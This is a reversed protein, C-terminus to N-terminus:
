TILWAGAVLCAIAAAKRWVLGGGLEEKLIKPRYVSLLVTFILLFFPHVGILANVLTIYGTRAAYLFFITTISTLGESLGTFILVPRGYRRVAATLARRGSAALPLFSIITGLKNYAFITWPDASALLYKSSVVGSSILGGALLMWWLGRSFRWGRINKLSLMVAGGAILLVGLYQWVSLRERLFVAAFLAVFLPVLSYIPAVRTIEEVKVARFYCLSSAGFAAGTLLAVALPLAPLRPFGLVALAILGSLAEIVGFVFYSGAPDAMWKSMVLKDIVSCVATAVAAILAYAVWTM